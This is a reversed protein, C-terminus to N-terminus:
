VAAMQMSDLLELAERTKGYDNANLKLSQGVVERSLRGADIHPNVWNNFAAQQPTMEVAPPKKAPLPESAAPPEPSKPAAGDNLWHLLVEAVDAGPKKLVRGDLDSCRTKNIIMNHDLDMEASVDFEYECGDRMIPAMGVKRPVSKGNVQELVYDVKSRSTGIVHLNTTIVTRLLQNWVPTVSGWAMYSNASKMRAAADDVMQQATLWAHTLSDIVLVDYRENCAMRIADEYGKITPTDLNLADFEFRDAYKSASHHETDIVAVRQGLAAAMALATWTKGSGSPGALFFRLKAQEKTAKKFGSVNM